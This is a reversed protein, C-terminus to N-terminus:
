AAFMAYLAIAALMVGGLVLYALGLATLKGATAMWGQGYVRRMSAYFYLAVYIWLTGGLVTTVSAPLIAGLLAYVALVLFIFAHNHVFFLLHEVYHRRRRRYLAKMVLGLLPLFVFMARPVNHLVSENVSKGGDEIAALCGAQFRARYANLWPLEQPVEDCAQGAETATPVNAASTRSYSTLIGAIVFFALSLVLYLRVPPLYRARRGQLFERTLFGPRFLLAGLTQWLRSDAHTFDEFAERMFHWFSHMAPEHRQGCQSCYPGSLPAECNACRELVVTPADPAGSAGAVAM